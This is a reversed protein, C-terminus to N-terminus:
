IKKLRRRRSIKRYGARKSHHTKQAHSRQKILKIRRAQNANTLDNTEIPATGFGLLLVSNEFLESSICPYDDLVNTRKRRRTLYTHIDSAVVLCAITIILLIAIIGFSRSAVKMLVTQVTSQECNAGYFGEYCSCTYVNIGDECIGRNSCSYVPCDDINEECHEGRFGLPCVCGEIMRNYKDYIRFLSGDNMCFGLPYSLHQCHDGGSHMPCVCKYDLHAIQHPSYNTDNSNPMISVCTGNNLCPNQQECVDFFLTLPQELNCSEKLMQLRAFVPGIHIPARNGYRITGTFFVSDILEILFITKRKMSSGSKSLNLNIQLSSDNSCFQSDLFVDATASDVKEVLLHMDSSKTLNLEFQESKVHRIVVDSPSQNSGNAFKAKETINMNLSFEKTEIRDFELNMPTGVIKTHFGNVEITPFSLNTTQNSTITSPLLVDLHITQNTQFSLNWTSTPLNTLNLSLM